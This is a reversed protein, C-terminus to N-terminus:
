NATFVYYYIGYFYLCTTISIILYGAEEFMENVSINELQKYYKCM